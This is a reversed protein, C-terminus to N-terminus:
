KSHKEIKVMERYLYELWYAFSPIDYEDYPILWNEKKLGAFVPEYIEWSWVIYRGLLNFVQQEDILNDRLLVGVGALYSGWALWASFSEVNDPGDTKKWEEYTNWKKQFGLKWFQKQFGHDAFRSYIPMFLQSQRTKNANRLVVVYYTTGIIVSAAAIVVSFTEIGQL